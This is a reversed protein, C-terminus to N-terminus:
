SPLHGRGRDPNGRRPAPHRSRTPARRYAAARGQERAEQDLARLADMVDDFPIPRKGGPLHRWSPVAEIACADSAWTALIARKENLTLDPDDVEVKTPGLRNAGTGTGTGGRRRVGERSLRTLPKIATLAPRTTERCLIPM